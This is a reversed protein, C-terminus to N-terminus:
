EDSVVEKHQYEKWKIKIYEEAILDKKITMDIGKRINKIIEIDDITNNNVKREIIDILKSKISGYAGRVKPLSIKSKELSTQINFVQNLQKETIVSYLSDTLNKDSSFLTELNNHTYTIWKAFTTRYNDQEDFTKIKDIYYLKCQNLFINSTSAVFENIFGHTIDQNKIYNIFHEIERNLIMKYKKFNSQDIKDFIEKLNDNKLKEIINNAINKFQTKSITKKGETDDTYLILSDMIATIIFSPFTVTPIFRNEDWKYFDIVLREKNESLWDTFNNLLVNQEEPLIMQRMLEKRWDSDVESASNILEIIIKSELTGPISLDGYYNLIIHQYWKNDIIINPQTFQECRALYKPLILGIINNLIASVKQIHQHDNFETLIEKRVEKVAKYKIISTENNPVMTEYDNLRSNIKFFSSEIIESISEPTIDLENIDEKLYEISSEVDRTLRNVAKESPNGEKETFLNIAVLEVSKLATEKVIESLSQSFEAIDKVSNNIYVKIEENILAM